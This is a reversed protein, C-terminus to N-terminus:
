AHTAVVQVKKNISAELARQEYEQRTRPRKQPRNAQAGDTPTAATQDAAMVKSWAVTLKRGGNWAPVTGHLTSIVALSSELTSFKIFASGKPHGIKPGQRHWHYELKTISGFKEFIKKLRFETITLDLGGIFLVGNATPQVPVDPEDEDMQLEPAMTVANFTAKPASPPMAIPENRTRKHYIAHDAIHEVPIESSRLQKVVISMRDALYRDWCQVGGVFEQIAFGMDVAKSQLHGSAKGTQLGIYFTSTFITVAPDTCVGSPPIGHCANSADQLTRCPIVSEACKSFPHVLQMSESLTELHLVLRRIKSEVLGAWKFQLDPSDSAVIIQLYHKYKVCFDSPELLDAWTAKGLPIMESILLGRKLESLIIHFTSPTVNHTSCMCPFSPTVIPMLHPSLEYTHYFPDHDKIEKLILPTKWDWNFVISFFKIAVVNPAANPYLQCIRAVAIAWSVGGLYGLKNSYIGRQNAWIKVYRVVTRFTALDPVLDLVDEAVRLGNLSRICREDLLELLSDDFLNLSQDVTSRLIRVYLLDVAIGDFVLNIIPTYAGEIAIAASVEPCEELAAVMGSFFDERTVFKPGVCVADIDSESDDIGLRRSGFIELRGGAAESLLPALQKRELVSKVFAKFIADISQIAHKRKAESGDSVVTWKEVTKRLRESSEIDERSPLATSLPETVGRYTRKAPFFTRNSM